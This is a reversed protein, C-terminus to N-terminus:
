MSLAVASESIHIYIHVGVSIVKGWKHQAHSNIFSPCIMFFKDLCLNWHHYCGNQYPCYDLGSLHCESMSLMSQDYRELIELKPLIFTIRGVIPFASTLHVIHINDNTYINNGRMRLVLPTFHDTNTDMYINIHKHVFFINSDYKLSRSM